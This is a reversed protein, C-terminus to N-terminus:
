SLANTITSLGSVTYSGSRYAEGLVFIRISRTEGMSVSAVTGIMQRAVRSELDQRVQTFTQGAM